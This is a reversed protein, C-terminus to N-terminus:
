SACLHRLAIPPRKQRSIRSVSRFPRRYERLGPDQASPNKREERERALRRQRLRPSVGLVLGAVLATLVVDSTKINSKAIVDSIASGLHAAAGDSTRESAAGSQPVARGRRAIALAALVLLIAAFLVVAGRRDSGGALTTDDGNM